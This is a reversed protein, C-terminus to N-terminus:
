DDAARRYLTEGVGTNKLGECCQNAGRGNESGMTTGGVAIVATGAPTQTDPATILDEVVEPAIPVTTATVVVEVTDGKETVVVTQVVTDGKETVIVTDGKETVIVTEVVREVITKTEGACAVTAIMAGGVLLGFLLKLKGNNSM